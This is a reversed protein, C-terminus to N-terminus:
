GSSECAVEEGNEDFCMEQDTDVVAFLAGEEYSINTELQSSVEGTSCGALFIILTVLSFKYGFKNM